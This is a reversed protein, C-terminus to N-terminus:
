LLTLALQNLSHTTHINLSGSEEPIMTGVRGRIGLMQIAWPLLSFLPEHTLPRFREFTIIWALRIWDGIRIFTVEYAGLLGHEFQSDEM